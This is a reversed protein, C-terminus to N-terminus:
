SVALATLPGGTARALMMGFGMLLDLNAHEGACLLLRLPVRPLIHFNNIGVWVQQGVQYELHKDSRPIRAVQIPVGSEGYEPPLPWTGPLPQLRLRVRQIPGLFLLEEIVGQGLIPVDLEERQTALTLDEPRFLIELRGEPDVTTYSVADSL